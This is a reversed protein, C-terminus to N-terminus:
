EEKIRLDKGSTAKNCAACARATHHVLRRSGGTNRFQSTSAPEILSKQHQRRRLETNAM